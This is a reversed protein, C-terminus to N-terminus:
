RRFRVHKEGNRMRSGHIRGAIPSVRDPGARQTGTKENQMSGPTAAKVKANLKRGLAEQSFFVRSLAGNNLNFARARYLRKIVVIQDESQARSIRASQRPLPSVHFVM